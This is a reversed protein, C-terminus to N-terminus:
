GGTAGAGSGRAGTILPEAPTAAEKARLRLAARMLTSSLFIMLQWASRLWNTGKLYSHAHFFYRSAQALWQIGCSILMLASTASHFDLRRLSSSRRMM